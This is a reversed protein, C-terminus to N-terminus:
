RLREWTITWIVPVETGDKQKEKLQGRFFFRDASVLYYPREQVTEVWNPASATEPRHVMVHESERIEFTGCYSLFGDLADAAESGRPTSDDAWRRRGRKMLEACMHGSATYMLFGRADPGFEVFPIARGDPYKNETAVLKWAGLFYDRVSGAPKYDPVSQAFGLVSFLMAVVVLKVLMRVKM